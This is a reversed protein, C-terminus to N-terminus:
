YTDTNYFSNQCDIDQKGFKNETYIRNHERTYEVQSLVVFRFFGHFHSKQRSIM